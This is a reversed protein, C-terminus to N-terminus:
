RKAGRIWGGGLLKDGQYFVAGQGKAVGVAPKDLFLV